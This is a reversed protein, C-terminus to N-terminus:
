HKRQEKNIEQNLLLAAIIIGTILCSSGFARLIDFLGGMFPVKESFGGTLLLMFSLIFIPIIHKFATKM